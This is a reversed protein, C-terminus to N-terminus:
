SPACDNNINKIKFNEYTIMNDLANGPPVLPFCYDSEVICNLIISKNNDYVLFKNINNQIEDLSMEKNITICEIDYAKAILEYNPNKTETAVVNNFFLKEWVNVMSQKSDNMIIMKIGINYNMITKLDNMMNFSQDGDIAIVIKDPHAIKVGIAMSNCSGMTGLSGSTIFRNPYQHTLLQAAYMQHNGVGTVYFIDKRIDLKDIEMDLINLIHQQKLTNTNYPFDIRYSKLYKIWHDNNQYLNDYKEIYNPLSLLSKDQNSKPNNWNYLIMSVNSYELHNQYKPVIHHNLDTLVDNADGYINITNPIVKNFSSYDNNIHIIYKAKKAYFDLNGTTRDDFRAGICIICDANQISYNARESGHMGLMKLSLYHKEDYTGLGHLTTTVPINRMLALKKLPSVANICGKGIYLVPREANNIIKAIDLIEYMTYKPYEIEKAFEIDKNNKIDMNLVDKPLNLHVQKGKKLLELTRNMMSKTESSDFLTYNWSTISKTLEIAPAEQFVHKGMMNVSVDGSITLLPINDCKADTISTLANTIGPGSTVINLSKCDNTSKNYGLSMFGGSSECKPIIMKIKIIDILSMISGGSFAYSVKFNNNIYNAICQKVKM